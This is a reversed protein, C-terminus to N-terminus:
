YGCAELVKQVAVNAGSVDFSTYSSSGYEPNASMFLKGNDHNDVLFRAFEVANSAFTSRNSTSDSWEEVAGVKVAPFSYEVTVYGSVHSRSFRWYADIENGESPSWQCRVYLIHPDSFDYQGASTVRAFTKEPNSEFIWNGLNNKDIVIPLNDLQEKGARLITALDARTPGDPFAREFVTVVQYTTLRNDPRFTGDEYGQFWGQDVAYQIDDAQTHDAPVDTFWDNAYAVLSGVTLSLVTIVLIITRRM